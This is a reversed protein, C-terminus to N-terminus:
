YERYGNWPQCLIKDNSYETKEIFSFRDIVTDNEISYSTGDQEPLYVVLFEDDFYLRMALPPEIGIGLASVYICNPTGYKAIVDDVTIRVLPTYFVTQVINNENLTFGFNICNLGSSGGISLNDWYECKELDILSRFIEIAEDKTTIGPTIGQFCPAACPIESLLGGDGLDLMDKYSSENDLCQVCPTESSEGESNVVRRNSDGCSTLSLIIVCLLIILAFLKRLKMIETM